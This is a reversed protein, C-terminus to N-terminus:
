CLTGSLQLYLSIEPVVITRCVLLKTSDASRLRRRGSAASVVVCGWGRVVFGFWVLASLLRGCSCAEAAPCSALSLRAIIIDTNRPWVEQYAQWDRHTCGFETRDLAEKVSRWRRRGTFQQLLDLRSSVFAHVLSHVSVFDLARKKVIHSYSFWKVGLMSVKKLSCPTRSAYNNWVYNSRFVKM